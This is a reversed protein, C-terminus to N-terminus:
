KEINIITLSQDLDYKSEKYEINNKAINKFIKFAEPEMAYEGVSYGFDNMIEKLTVKDIRYNRHSSFCNDLFVKLTDKNDAIFCADENYEYCEELRSFGSYGIVIKNDKYKMERIQM